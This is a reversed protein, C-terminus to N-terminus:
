SNFLKLLGSTLKIFRKHRVSTVPQNLCLKLNFSSKLFDILRGLDPLSTNLISDLRSSMASQETSFKSDKRLTDCTKTEMSRSLKTTFEADEGVETNRVEVAKIEIAKTSLDKTEEAKLSLDRSQCTKSEIRKRDIFKEERSKSETNKSEFIRTGKLSSDYKKQRFMTVETVKVTTKTENLQTAVTTTKNTAPMVSIPENVLTETGLSNNSGFILSDRKGM